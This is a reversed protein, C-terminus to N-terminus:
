IGFKAAASQWRESKATLKASTAAASGKNAARWVRRIFWGVTISIVIWVVVRATNTSTLSHVDAFVTTFRAHMWPFLFALGGALGASALFILCLGVVTRAKFNKTQQFLRSWGVAKSDLNLATLAVQHMVAFAALWLLMRLAHSPTTFTKGHPLPVNVLWVLLAIALITGNVVLGIQ